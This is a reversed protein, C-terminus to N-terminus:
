LLMQLHRPHISICYDIVMSVRLDDGMSICYDIVMSVRLDDGMSLCCDIVM